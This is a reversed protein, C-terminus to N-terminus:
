TDDDGAALAAFVRQMREVKALYTELDHAGCRQGRAELGQRAYRAGGGAGCLHIAAALKQKQALTVHPVPQHELVQTVRRDLYAATLEIAHSPFTRTYLSNFWCSRLAHWPGDEVVAHDHICYRRAEAFTGNTIQYMGVASSAPRYIDFPDLTAAWRWYTRAVPNGSAEVQAVAALLEPSMISTSHRRFLPEYTQWTGAPTKYLTGSIPFLLESPKRVVQYTWNAGLWAAFVITTCITVQLPVPARRFLAAARRGWRSLAQLLRGGGRRARGGARKRKRKHKRRTRTPNMTRPM